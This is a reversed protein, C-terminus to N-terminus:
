FYAFGAKDHEELVFYKLERNYLTAETVEHIRPRIRRFM